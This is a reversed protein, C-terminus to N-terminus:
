RPLSLVCCCGLQQLCQSRALAPSPRPPPLPRLLPPPLLLLPPLRSTATERERAELPSAVLSGVVRAKERLHLRAIPSAEVLARHLWDLSSDSNSSSCSIFSSLCSFNSNSEFSM